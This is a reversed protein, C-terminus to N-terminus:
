QMRQFLITFGNQYTISLTMGNPALQFINMFPVGQSTMGQAINGQVQFFGSEFPVGNQWAQYQNGQFQMVFQVGNVVAGWVGDLSPQRPMPQIPPQQPMTPQQPMPLQQPQQVPPQQPTQVQPTQERKFVMAMGTAKVTVTLTKNPVDCCLSLWLPDPIGDLTVKVLNDSLLFRGEARDNGVVYEARDGKFTLKSGDEGLWVGQIFNAPFWVENLPVLLMQSGDSLDVLRWFYSAGDEVLVSVMRQMLVYRGDVYDYISFFPLGRTQINVYASEEKLDFAKRVFLFGSGGKPFTGQKIEVVEGSSAMVFGKGDDRPIAGILAYRGPFYQGGKEQTAKVYPSLLPNAKVLVPASVLARGIGAISEAFGMVRAYKGEPIMQVSVSLGNKWLIPEGSILKLGDAKSWVRLHPRFVGEPTPTIRFALTGGAGYGVMSEIAQFETSVKVEVPIERDNTQADKYMGGVTFHGMDSVDMFDATVLVNKEGNTFEYMGGGFQYLLENKGDRFVPTIAEAINASEELKKATAERSLNEDMLITNQLVIHDGDPDNGNSMAFAFYAWLINKGELTMKVYSGRLDGGSMPVVEASPTITVDAGSQVKEIGPKLVPSGFEISLIKPPEAGGKQQAEHLRTLAGAWGTKKAFESEAYESRMNVGRLPAYLSLGNCFPLLPGKETALILSKAATEVDEIEKLPPNKLTKKMRALWDLLDISALANGEMEYDRRGAYNQAYFITRTVDGWIESAENGLQGALAKFAATFAEAKSLDFASLSVERQGADLYAQIGVRVLQGAIEEASKGLGFLPLGKCYDMGIGPVIPASAVMYKVFPACALATEAQGMLCMDFLVLDLKGDPLGQVVGSLASQFETLSLEDVGEPAGPADDDNAMGIWGSGHNWMVLANQPSPVRTLLEGLFDKLIKPDGLNLEGCESLLQSDIDDSRVSKAVRYLRTGTWDGMSKDYDKARDLLVFIEVKGEPVQAFGTELEKMDDLAYSELNNDGDIYVLITWERTGPSALGELVSLGSFVSPNASVSASVPATPSAGADLSAAVVPPAVADASGPAAWGVSSLVFFLGLIVCTLLTTVTKDSKKMSM